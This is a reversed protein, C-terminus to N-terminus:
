EYADDALESQPIRQAGALFSQRLQDESTGDLWFVSSFTKQDRARLGFQSALQTKGIGGMGHLVFVKRHESRKDKLTVGTNVFFDGLERMFGRDVYRDVTPIGQLSFIVQKETNNGAHHDHATSASVQHNKSPTVYQM